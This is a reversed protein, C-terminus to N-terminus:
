SNGKSKKSLFLIVLFVFVPPMIWFIEYFEGTKGKPLPAAAYLNFLLVALILSILVCLYSDINFRKFIYIPIASSLVFILIFVLIEFIFKNM